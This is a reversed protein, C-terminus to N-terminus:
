RLEADSVRYIRRVFKENLRFGVSDFETDKLFIYMNLLGEVM